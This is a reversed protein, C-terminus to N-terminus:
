RDHYPPLDLTGNENWEDGREAAHRAYGQRLRRRGTHRPARVPLQVGFVMKILWVTFLMVFLPIVCSTVVLVALSEILRNLLGAGRNALESVTTRLSTFLRQVASQDTEAQLFPATEDSFRSADTVAQEVSYEYVSYIKDSMRISFPIVAWVALSVAAIRILMGPRRGSLLLTLAYIVCSGPILYCFVAEGLIPMLYKEAYLVCIVLFGYESFEALKEAIPTGADGPVASLGASAATASATLKMVSAIKGDISVIEETYMTPQSFIRGLAFFSVAAILICVSVACLKKMVNEM